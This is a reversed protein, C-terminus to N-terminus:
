EQKEKQLWQDLSGYQTLFGIFHRDPFHRLAYRVKTQTEDQGFHHAQVELLIGLTMDFVAEWEAPLKLQSEVRNEIQKRSPYSLRLTTARTRVLEPVGKDEAIQGLCECGWRLARMREFPTTM